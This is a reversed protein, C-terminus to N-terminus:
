GSSGTLYGGCLGRRLSGPGELWELRKERGRSSSWVVKLHFSEHRVSRTENGNWSLLAQPWRPFGPAELPGPVRSIVLDGKPKRPLGLAEQDTKVNFPRKFLSWSLIPPYHQIAPPGQLDGAIFYSCFRPFCCSFLALPKGGLARWSYSLQLSGGELRKWNDKDQFRNWLCELPREFAKLTHLPKCFGALWRCVDLSLKTHNRIVLQRM